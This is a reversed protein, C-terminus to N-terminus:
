RVRKVTQNGAADRAVLRHARRGRLVIRIARNPVLRNTRRGITLTAAEDSRITVVRRGRKRKVKVTLRPATTDARPPAPPPTPDIAPTVPRDEGSPQAPAPVPAVDLPQEGPTDKAGGVRVVSECDASVSDGADAEVADVGGGCVITDTSAGDVADITEDGDSGHFSDAGPGGIKTDDGEYESILTDNGEGGEVRNAGGFPRLTDNGAGGLVVDGSMGTIVSDDGTGADVHAAGIWEMEESGGDAIYAEDDGDGLVVQPRRANPCARWGPHTWVTGCAAQDPDAEDKIVAYGVDLVNMSLRNAEGDEATYHITSAEDVTLTAASAGAPVAACAALALALVVIRLM